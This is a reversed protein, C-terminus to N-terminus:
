HQRGGWVCSMPVQSCMPVEHPCPQMAQTCSPPYVASRAPVRGFRESRVDNRQLGAPNRTLGYPAVRLSVPRDPRLATQLATVDSTTHISGFRGTRKPNSETLSYQTQHTCSFFSNGCHSWSCSETTASPGQRQPKRELILVAKAAPSALPKGNSVLVSDLGVCKRLIRSFINVRVGCRLVLLRGFCAERCAAEERYGVAAIWM